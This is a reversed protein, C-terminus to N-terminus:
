CGARAPEVVVGVSHMPNISYHGYYDRQVSGERVLKSLESRVSNPNEKINKAIEKPTQTITATELCRLIKSRTTTM